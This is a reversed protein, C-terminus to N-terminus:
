KKMSLVVQDSVFFQVVLGFFYSQLTRFNIISIHSDVGVECGYDRIKQSLTQQFFPYTKGKLRYHGVAALDVEHLRCLIKPIPYIQVKYRSFVGFDINITHADPHSLTAM